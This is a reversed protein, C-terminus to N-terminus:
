QWAHTRLYDLIAHYADASLHIGDGNDYASILTGDVSRLASATDVVRVNEHAAAIEPLWENLTMIHNNLTELDVSFASAKAVPYVTQLIIKTEPSAQQIANILKSYNNTYSNKNSIFDMIGNLGFSLVVFDPKEQACAEAITMEAGGCLIKESTIRSSLRKTGSSDKWVQSAEIPLGPRSSLHATTSEGFFIMSGIYELGADETQELMVDDPTLSVTLHATTDQLDTDLPEAPPAANPILALVVLTILALLCLLTLSAILTLLILLIRQDNHDDHGNQPMLFKAPNM